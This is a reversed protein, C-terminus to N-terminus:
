SFNFNCRFVPTDFSVNNHRELLCKMRWIFLYGRHLLYIVDVIYRGCPKCSGGCDKDDEDGDKMDNSCHEPDLTLYYLVFIRM